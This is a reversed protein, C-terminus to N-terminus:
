PGVEWKVSVGDACNDTALKEVVDDDSSAAKKSGVSVTTARGLKVGTVLAYCGSQPVNTYELTFSRKNSGRALTVDGNWVNVANTSNVEMTAPYADKSIMSSHIDSPYGSTLMMEPVRSLITNANTVERSNKSADLGKSVLLATFGVAIVGLAIYALGEILGFGRQRKPVVFNRISEVEVSALRNGKSGLNDTKM